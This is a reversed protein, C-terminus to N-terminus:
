QHAAPLRLQKLICKEGCFTKSIQHVDFGWDVWHLKLILHVDQIQSYM